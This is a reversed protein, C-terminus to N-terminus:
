AARLAPPWPRSVHPSGAACFRWPLDAAKTIGIRVGAAVEPAEWGPPPPGLRV